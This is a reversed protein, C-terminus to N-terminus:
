VERTGWFCANYEKGTESYFTNEWYGNYDWAVEGSLLKLVITPPHDPGDTFFRIIHTGTHLHFIEDTFRYSPDELRKMAAKLQIEKPIEAM